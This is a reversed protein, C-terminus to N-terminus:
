GNAVESSGLRGKLSTLAEGVSTLIRFLGDARQDDFECGDGPIRVVASAVFDLVCIANMLIDGPQGMALVDSVGKGADIDFRKTVDNEAM